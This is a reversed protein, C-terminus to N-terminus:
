EKNQSLIDAALKKVDRATLTSEVLWGKIKTYDNAGMCSNHKDFDEFFRNIAETEYPEDIGIDNINNRLNEIANLLEDNSPTSGSKTGYKIIESTYNKVTTHAAKLEPTPTLKEVPGNWKKCFGYNKWLKVVNLASECMKELTRYSATSIGNYFYIVKIQLAKNKEQDVDQMTWFDDFPFQPSFNKFLKEFDYRLPDIFSSPNNKIDTDRTKYIQQIQDVKLRIVENDFENRYKERDIEHLAHLFIQYLQDYTYAPLDIKNIIIKGLYDSYKESYKKTIVSTVRSYDFPLIFIVKPFDSLLKVLKLTMLVMNPEMRDIDDLVIVIPGPIKSLTEDIQLKLKNLPDRRLLFSFGIKAWWPSAEITPTILNIYQQTDASTFIEVGHTDYIASNLTNFFDQILENENGFNWPNYDIWVFKNHEKLVNKKTENRTINIFTTKGAGWKANLCVTYSTDNPKRMAFEPFAIKNALSDINDIMEKFLEEKSSGWTNIENLDALTKLPKDFNINTSNKESQDIGKERSLKKNQYNIVCYSIILVIFLITTDITSIPLRHQQVIALTFVYGIGTVAINEVPGRRFSTPRKHFDEFYRAILLSSLIIFSLLIVWDSIFITTSNEM